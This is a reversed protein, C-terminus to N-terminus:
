PQPFVGQPTSFGTSPVHLSEQNLGTGDFPDLALKQRILIQCPAVIRCGLTITVLMLRILRQVDRKAAWLCLRLILGVLLFLYVLMFVINVGGNGIRKRNCGGYSSSFTNRYTMPM